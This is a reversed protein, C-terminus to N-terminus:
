MVKKSQREIIIFWHGIFALVTLAAGWLLTLLILRPTQKRTIEKRVEVRVLEEERIRAREDSSLSM